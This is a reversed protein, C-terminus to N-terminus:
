CTVHLVNCMIIIVLIAQLIHKIGIRNNGLSKRIVDREKVRVYVVKFMM